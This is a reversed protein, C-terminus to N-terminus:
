SYSLQLAFPWQLDVPALARTTQAWRKRFKTKELGSHVFVILPPCLCWCVGMQTSHTKVECRAPVDM